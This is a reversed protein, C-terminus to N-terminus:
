LPMIIEFVLGDRTCKPLKSMTDKLDKLAVFDRRM